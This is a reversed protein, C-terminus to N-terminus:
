SRLRNLQGVLRSGKSPKKQLEAAKQKVFERGEPSAWWAAEEEDDAFAPPKTMKLDFEVGGGGGGGEGCVGWGAGGPAM